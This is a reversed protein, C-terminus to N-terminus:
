KPVQLCRGRPTREVTVAASAAAAPHLCCAERPATFRIAAAAVVTAQKATVTAAFAPVLLDTVAAAAVAALVLLQSLWLVGAADGDGTAAVVLHWLLWMVGAAASASAMAKRSVPDQQM